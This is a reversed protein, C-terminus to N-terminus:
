ARGVAPGCATILRFRREPLWPVRSRFSSPVVTKEIGDLQGVASRKAAKAIGALEDLGQWRGHLVPRFPPGCGLRQQQNDFAVAIRHQRPVMRANFAAFV